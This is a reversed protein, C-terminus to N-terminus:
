WVAWAAVFYGCRGRSRGDGRQIKRRPAQRRRGASNADDEDLLDERVAVEAEVEIEDEDITGDGDVDVGTVTTREIIDPVGDGDVDVAITTTREIIDPVGDGDVDVAITTTQEVIDPVGDGDVDIVATTTERVVDITGDGDVDILETEVEIDAQGEAENEDVEATLCEVRRAAVCSYSAHEASRPRAAPVPPRRPWSPNVRSHGPHRLEEVDHESLSGAPRETVLRYGVIVDLADEFRACVRRARLVRLWPHEDHHAVVLNAGRELSRVRRSHDPPPRSQAFDRLVSRSNASTSARTSLPSPPAGTNMTTQSSVLAPARM